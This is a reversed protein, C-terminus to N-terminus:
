GYKRWIYKKTKKNNKKCNLIIGVMKRILSSNEGIGGTFVIADVKNDLIEKYSGIYKKIRYCGNKLALKAKENSSVTGIM